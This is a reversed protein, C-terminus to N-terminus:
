SGLSWIYILIGRSNKILWKIETKLKEQEVIKERDFCPFASPLGRIFGMAYCRNHAVKIQYFNLGGWAVLLIVPIIFIKRSM